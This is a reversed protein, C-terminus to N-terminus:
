GSGQEHPSPWDCLSAVYDASGDQLWTDLQAPDKLQRGRALPVEVYRCDLEPLTSVDGWLREWQSVVFVDEHGRGWRQKVEKLTVYVPLREIFRQVCRNVRQEDGLGERDLGMATLWHDIDIWTSLSNYWSLRWELSEIPLAISEVLRLRGAVRALGGGRDEIRRPVVEFTLGAGQALHRGLLGEDLDVGLTDVNHLLLTSLAPRQEILRRLTGNLVLSALEHGHGLPHLCQEPRNDRYDGAPGQADAWALLAARLSGGVKEVQEDQLQRGTEHWLFNLDRATPVMRLGVGRGPSLLPTTPGAERRCWAAIPEHTLWSTTIAQVPAIGWRRAARRGKAEHVDLFSRWAGDRPWFPNLAKVVGAGRTWRTGLGGALTVMAVEGRALAAAGRQRQEATIADFPAVDGPLVDDIETHAPLRNAALGIRGCRLSESLADHAARDFGLRDLLEDLATSDAIPDATPDATSGAAPLHGPPLAESRREAVLSESTGHRRHELRAWSGRTNVAFDYVVPAMAFPQEHEMATAAETLLQLTLQQGREKAAPDFLFGMGGGAMGGLMWFGWFDKGFRRSLGDVVTETYANAAWPIITQLPGHYTAHTARGIAAVDGASLAAALEDFLRGAEARASTPSPERLLYKETVLELVPGVDQALGGHALVLSAALREAMDAPADQEDLLRHRPLLCGRSHGWEPDGPEALAGEIRKIGPWLGGSDQWGGGSGGLWEGLIARACILRRDKNSLPGSLTETQGTARMAAAIIAALLNTSVALRSGKPLGRVHTTLQLGRGAGLLQALLASLSGSRGELGPPVLGGAVLGARLLGLHDAAFDFVEPLTTLEVRADLDVSSLRLCPTDIVSLRVEIPPSPTSGQGHVALDISVNLVRATEPADMALFFIDSWASHSFDMRVPTSEVLCAGGLLEPVIRRPHRAPDDHAFMWRNGPVARVSDRVQRALTDFALARYAASLISGLAASPGQRAQAALSCDISDAFRRRNLLEVAQAPITGLAPLGGGAPLYLRQLASLFLLTRVRRYLNTQERWSQDLAACANLLEATTAGACAERLSRDRAPAAEANLIQLLRDQM